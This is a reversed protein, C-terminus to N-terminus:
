SHLTLYFTSCALHVLEASKGEDSDKLDSDLTRRVHTYLYMSSQPDLCTDPQCFVHGDM